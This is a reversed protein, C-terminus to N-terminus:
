KAHFRLDAVPIDTTKGDANTYPALRGNPQVYATFVDGVGYPPAGNCLVWVPRDWRGAQARTELLLCPEGDIDGIAAVRGRYSGRLGAERRRAALRRRAAM